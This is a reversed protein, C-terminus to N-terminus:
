KYLDTNSVKWVFELVLKVAHNNKRIQLVDKEGDHMFHLLQVLSRQYVILILSCCVLLYNGLVKVSLNVSHCAESYLFFWAVNTHMCFALTYQQRSKLYQANDAFM